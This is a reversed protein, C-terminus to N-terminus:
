LYGLGRLRELVRPDVAAADAPEGAGPGGYSPVQRIPHDRLFAPDIADVRPSGDMDAGVPLGALALLTPTLDYLAVEGLPGPRVGRGALVCLGLPDHQGSVVFGRDEFLDEFPVARDPDLRVRAAHLDGEEDLAFALVGDEPPYLRFLPRSAGELRVQQLEAAVAAAPLGRTELAFVDGFRAGVVRGELDLLRLLREFRLDYKFRPRARAAFGHDSTVLVTTGPGALGLLRGLIADATEYARHVVQGYRAAEAASVEPFRAPERYKWYIHSVTDTAHVHFIALDPRHRRCLAVFVDAFLRPQLLLARWRRDLSRRPLLAAVAAAWTAPRVGHRALALADGLRAVAPNRGARERLLLRQLFAYAPPHTEPGLAFVDPILFGRVPRPPWTALVGCVGVTWGHEECIEWLRRARVARSDKGFFTIGHRHPRQGTFISTWLAPSANGDARVSGWAGRARLRALHPLRGRAILPEAVTWTAGDIGCVLLRM